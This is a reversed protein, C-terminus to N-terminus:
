MRRSPAIWGARGSTGPPAEADVVLIAERMWATSLESTARPMDAGM